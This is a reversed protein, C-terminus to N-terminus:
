PTKDPGYFRSLDIGRERQEDELLKLRVELREFQKILKPLLDLTPDPRPPEPVKPYNLQRQLAAFFYLPERRRNALAIRGEREGFLILERDPTAGGAEARRAAYESHVYVLDALDVIGLQHRVALIWRSWRPDYVPDGSMAALGADYSLRNRCLCEFQFFFLGSTQGQNSRYIAERALITMARPMDFRGTDAEAAQVLFTQFPAFYHPLRAMATAMTGAHNLEALLFDIAMPLRTTVLVEQKVLELLEQVPQSSNVREALALFLHAQEIYEEKELIPTRDTVPQLERLPTWPAWDPSGHVFHLSGDAIRDVVSYDTLPLSLDM